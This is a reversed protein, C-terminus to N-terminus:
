YFTITDQTQYKMLVSGGAVTKQTASGSIYRALQVVVKGTGLDLIDEDDFMITFFAADHFSLFFSNGNDINSLSVIINEGEEIKKGSWQVYFDATIDTSDALSIIEVPEPILAENIFQTEHYNTYNFHNEVEGLFEKRYTFDSEDFLLAKGNFTVNSPHTLKLRNSTLTSPHNMSFAASATTKNAVNDYILAYSTYIKSQDPVVPDKECSVIILGTVISLFYIRAKNM